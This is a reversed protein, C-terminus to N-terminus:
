RKWRIVYQRVPLKYRRLLMIFYDAMRFVMEPEDKVQFEIHLVFTEGNKDTIKKLVDPKREKTHQIDDPLEEAYVTHIGLLNKILGPLAAELNERLIKDYQNVQGTGARTKEV